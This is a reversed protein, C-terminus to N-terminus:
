RSTAPIAGAHNLTSSRCRRWSSVPSGTSETVKSSLSPSSGVSRSSNEPSASAQRSSVYREWGTRSRTETVSSVTKTRLTPQPWLSARSTTRANVGSPPRGSGSRTARSAARAASPANSEASRYRRKQPGPGCARAHLVHVAERDLATLPTRFEESGPGPDNVTDTWVVSIEEEDAFGRALPLVVPTFREDATAPCHEVVGEPVRAERPRVDPDGVAHSTSWGLIAIRSGPLARVTARVEILLDAQDIGRHDDREAFDRALVEQAPVQGDGALRTRDLLDLDPARAPADEDADMRSRRQVVATLAFGEFGRDLLGSVQDAVTALGFQTVKSRRGM